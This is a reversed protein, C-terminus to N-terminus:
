EQQKNFNFLSLDVDYIAGSNDLAENSCPKGSFSLNCIKLDSTDRPVIEKKENKTLLQTITQSENKDMSERVTQSARYIASTSM